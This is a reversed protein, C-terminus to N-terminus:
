AIGCRVRVQLLMPGEPPKGELGRTGTSVSANKAAALVAARASNQKFAGKESLETDLKM